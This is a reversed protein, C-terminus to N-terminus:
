LVPEVPSPHPVPALEVVVPLPNVEPNPELMSDLDEPHPIYTPPPKIHKYYTHYTNLNKKGGHILTFFFSVFFYQPPINFTKYM